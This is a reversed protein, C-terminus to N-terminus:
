LSSSVARCDGYRRVAPASGIAPAAYIFDLLGAILRIPFNVDAGLVDVPGDALHCRGHEVFHRMKVVQGMLDLVDAVVPVEIIFFELVSSLGVTQADLVVGGVDRRQGFFGDSPQDLLRFHLIYGGAAFRHELDFGLRVIVLTAFRGDFTPAAGALIAADLVDARMASGDNPRRPLDVHYAAVTVHGKFLGLGVALLRGSVPRKNIGHPKAM